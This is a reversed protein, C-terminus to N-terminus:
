TGRSRRGRAGGAMLEDQLLNYLPTLIDSLKIMWRAMTLRPLDVFIREFKQELRYLPLHDVYKSVCIYALLSPSAMSGPIPQPPM